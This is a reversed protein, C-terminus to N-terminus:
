KMIYLTKKRHEQLNGLSPYLSNELPLQIHKGEFQKISYPSDCREIFSKAIIVRYDDDVSILHRDFARHLTPCLSLGNSITDDHSKSFPIIHCADIMSVETTADIRLGSICCTNNYVRSIERKFAGSRIFVEESFEEKDLTSELRKMNAAYEAPEERVILQSVNDFYSEGTSVVDWNNRCDSFYTELLVQKLMNRSKPSNLFLFLEGDLSAHSVAIRLQNFSSLSKTAKLWNEFGPNVHLHWFGESKLHFFPLAFTPVHQSEVLNNWTTKFLSVLMPSVSIYNSNIYGSEIARIVSLLLVAKHPAPGFKTVGQRLSQFKKIYYDLNKQHAKM